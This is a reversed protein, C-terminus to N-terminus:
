FLSCYVSTEDINSTVIFRMYCFALPIWKFTGTDAICLKFRNNLKYYLLTNPYNSQYINNIIFSFWICLILGISALHLVFSTCFAEAPSKVVNLLSYLYEHWMQQNSSKNSQRVTFKLNFTKIYNIGRQCTWRILMVSIM